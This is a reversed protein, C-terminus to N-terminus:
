PQKIGIKEIVTAEVSDIPEEEPEEITGEASDKLGIKPEDETVEATKEGETAGEVQDELGISTDGSPTEDFITSVAYVGAVAAVIIAISIGIIASKNM